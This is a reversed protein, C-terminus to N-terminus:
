RTKYEDPMELKKIGNNARLAACGIRATGIFAGVSALMMRVSDAPRIAFHMIPSKIGRRVCSHHTTSSKLFNEIGISKMSIGGHGLKRRIARMEIGVSSLPSM